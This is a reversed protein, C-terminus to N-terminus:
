ALWIMVPAGDAMQRFREESEKLRAEAQKRQTIYEVVALFCKPRGAADCILSKCMTAWVINGDSREYRKETSFSKIEGSLLRPIMRAENQLDDRHTVALTGKRALDGPTHGVVEYYRDNALEVKGALSLQ